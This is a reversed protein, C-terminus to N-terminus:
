GMWQQALDAGQHGSDASRSKTKPFARRDNNVEGDRMQVLDARRSTLCGFGQTATACKQHASSM